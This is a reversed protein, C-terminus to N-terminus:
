WQSHFCGNAMAAAVTSRLQDEIGIAKLIRLPCWPMPLSEHPFDGASGVPGGAFAGSDRASALDAGTSTLPSGASAASVSYGPRSSPLQVTNM